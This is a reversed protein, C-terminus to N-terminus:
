TRFHALIIYGTGSWARSDDIPQPEASFNRTDAEKTETSTMLGNM